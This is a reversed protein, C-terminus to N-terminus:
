EDRERDMRDLETEARAGSVHKPLTDLTRTAVPNFWAALAKHERMEAKLDAVGREIDAVQSQLAELTEFLLDKTVNDTM